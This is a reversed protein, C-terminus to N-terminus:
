VHLAKVVNMNGNVPPNFCISCLSPRCEVLELVGFVPASFEADGVTVVDAWAPSIYVSMM